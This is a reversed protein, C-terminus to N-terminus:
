SRLRVIDREADPSVHSRGQLRTANSKFPPDVYVLDVSEDQVHRRLVDLTDGYCPLNM